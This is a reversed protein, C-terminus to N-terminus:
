NKQVKAAWKQWEPSFGYQNPMRTSGGRFTVTVFGHDCLAKMDARFEKAADYGYFDAQESKTFHIKGDNSDIIAGRSVKRWYRRKLEIYLARQRWTLDRYAASTLLSHSLSVYRDNNRIAEWETNIVKDKSKAM